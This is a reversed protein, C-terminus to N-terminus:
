GNNLTLDHIFPTRQIDKQIRVFSVSCLIHTCFACVWLFCYAIGDYHDTMFHGLYGLFCPRWHGSTPGVPGVDAWCWGLIIRWPNVSVKSLENHGGVFNTANDCPVTKPCGRQSVFRFLANIFADTELSNWKEIHIARTTLCMFVIGYRKAESRGHKVYFPGFVDLGTDSFPPKLPECREPPLDSMKQHMPSAYLNRCVVCARKVAKIMNRANVIWYKFRVKSLTWEVGFHTEGHTDHVIMKSVLHNVSLIIPHRTQFMLQSHCLRGGVVWGVLLGDHIMPDLKLVPSSRAVPKGARSAALEDPYERSQMHMLVLREAANLESATKAGRPIVNHRLYAKFRLLWSIARKMRYFSRYHQSLKDVPHVPTDTTCVHVHTDHSPLTECDDNLEPPATDAPWDCLFQSLFHPGHFWNSPMKEVDCGRSLIDAPNQKGDIQHWQDFSSHQRIESMRNAVFVKFRKSENHIYARAIASDTFFSSRMIHIDLERWLLVDLRVALLAACLELPPIAVTRLPALRGKSM